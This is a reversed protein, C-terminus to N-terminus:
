EGYVDQIAIMAVDYDFTDGYYIALLTKARPKVLDKGFAEVFKDLIAVYAGIKAEMMAGNDM